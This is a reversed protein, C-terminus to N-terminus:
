DPAAGRRDLEAFVPEFGPDVLARGLVTTNMVVRIM